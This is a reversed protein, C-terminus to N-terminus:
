RERGTPFLDDDIGPEEGGPFVRSTDAALTDALLTDRVADATDARLQFSKGSIGFGTNFSIRTLRPITLEDTQYKYPNHTMSVNLNLKGGLSTRLSSSIQSWPTEPDKFNYGTNLDWSLFEVKKEEQEEGSGSLYKAQFVNRLSINLSQRQNSPTGGALTGRFRDYKVTNGDGDKGYFYYGYFEKSFDPSISYSVSPTMVHRLARVPGVPINLLGYLKTNLGLSLNFTHRARFRNVLRFEPQGTEPDTVVTDSRVVPERYERVWDENFNLRPNLSFYNLVTLPSQLSFNHEIAQRDETVYVSDSQLNVSRGYSDTYTSDTQLQRHVNNNFRANYSYNLNYYWRNRVQFGAGEPPSFLKDNGRRFSVAPLSMRVNGNQLNENRSLNVQISNKTGEWRKSFSANSQATQQLRERRDINTERRFEQSSVFSGNVNLNMTPDIRHNHSVRVEYNQQRSPTFFQKDYNFQINGSFVYRKEYRIRQRVSIGRDEWFDFLLRYDWYPSPAWYYGLGRLYRGSAASEGYTPLLYGSSRAGTKQPFLGFPLAFVPVNHIYMVIPRAIVKDRLILKMQRSHFHYHPDNLDCTTYIGSSVYFTKEGRKMITQGTYRGDQYKTKGRVVRGRRTQLDYEMEEGIMPEQGQQRFTPLGRDGGEAKVTDALPTAVLLNKKWYVDIFAADLQMDKYEAHADYMLYTIREPVEFHIKESNYKIVTDVSTNTEHPIFTGRTGGIVDIVDLTDGNGAFHMRITDGSTENIGRYLSDEFVHYRSTSMGSVQIRNITNEELWMRLENGQLINERTIRRTRVPRLTDPIASDATDDQFTRGRVYGKTKSRLHAERPIFVRNLQDAKFYLEITNGRITHDTYYVVPSKELVAYNDAEHFTALETLARLSDRLIIVSDRAVYRGTDANGTIFNSTISVIQEGLSDLKVLEPRALARLSDSKLNRSIEPGRIVIQREFDHVEAPNGPSGYIKVLDTKSQFWVSDARVKRDPEQMIVQGTAEALETETYYRIREATLVRNESILRADGTAVLLDQQNYVTLSDATLTDTKGEVRVNDWFISIDTSEYRIASQCYMEYDGRRFHVNGELRQVDHGDELTKRLERAHILELKEAAQLAPNGLLLTIFLWLTTRVPKVM